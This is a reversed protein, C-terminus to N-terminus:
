YTQSTSHSTDFYMPGSATPVKARIKATAVATGHASSYWHSVAALMVSTGVGATAPTMTREASYYRTGDGRRVVAQARMSQGDAAGMRM